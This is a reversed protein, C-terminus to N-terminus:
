EDGCFPSSSGVWRQDKPNGQLTKRLVQSSQQTLTHAKSSSLGPEFVLEALQTIKPFDSGM